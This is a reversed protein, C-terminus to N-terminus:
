AERNRIARIIGQQFELVSVIGDIVGMESESLEPRKNLKLVRKVEDIMELSFYVAVQEILSRISQKLLPRVTDSFSRELSALFALMLEESWRRKLQELIPKAPHNDHIGLRMQDLWFIGIEEKQEPTLLSILLERGKIKLRDPKNQRLVDHAFHTDEAFVAVRTWAELISISKTGNHAGQVLIDPTVGWREYWFSLPVFSLMQEPTWRNDFAEAIERAYQRSVWARHGIFAQSWAFDIVWAKRRGMRTIVMMREVARYMAQSFPLEPMSCLMRAALVGVYGDDLLQMLFHEDRASLGQKMQELLHIRKDYPIQEWYKELLDRAKDPETERLRQIYRRWFIDPHWEEYQRDTDFVWRWRENNSIQALWRGREGIVPRLKEQLDPRSDGHTLLLPLVEEPLRQNSEVMENLWVPLLNVHKNEAIMLLLQRVARGNCAAATDLPASPFQEVAGTFPKYGAQQQLKLTVAKLLLQTEAQQTAPLHGAHNMVAAPDSTPFRQATGLAATRLIDNSLAM